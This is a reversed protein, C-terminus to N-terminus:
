RSGGGHLWYWMAAFAAGTVTMWKAVTGITQLTSVFGKANNWATMIEAVADLKAQMQDLKDIIDDKHSKLEECPSDHWDDGCEKCRDTARRMQHDTM